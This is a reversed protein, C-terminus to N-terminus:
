DEDPFNVEVLESWFPINRPQDPVEIDPFLAAGFENFLYSILNRGYYIIDTQYVSFVPNNVEHPEAPIFRHGYIPILKPAAEVKQKAVLFMEELTSPKKGWVELWFDNHEIDFEIGELPWNLESEIAARAEVSTLALRWNTFSKSVPLVLQLFERYDPPFTFGYMAEIQKVEKNSLGKEVEVKAAKMLDILYQYQKPPKPKGWLRSLGNFFDAVRNNSETAM